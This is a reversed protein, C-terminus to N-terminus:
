GGRIISRNFYINESVCHANPFGLLYFDENSLDDFLVEVVPCNVQNKGAFFTAICDGEKSRDLELVSYTWTNLTKEGDEDEDSEYYSDETCQSWQEEINGDLVFLVRKKAYDVAYDMVPLLADVDERSQEESHGNEWNKTTVRVATGNLFLEKEIKELKM